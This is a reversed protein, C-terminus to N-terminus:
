FDTILGVARLKQVEEIRNRNIHRSRWLQANMKATLDWYRWGDGPYLYPGPRGKWREIVGHKQIAEFLAIYDAEDRAKKRLTYEHPLEPMTKAFVFDLRSIALLITNM